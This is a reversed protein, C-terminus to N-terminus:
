IFYKMSFLKNPPIVFKHALKTMIMHKTDHFASYNDSILSLNRGDKRMKKRESM